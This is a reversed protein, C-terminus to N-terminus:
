GLENDGRGENLLQGGLGGRVTGLFRLCFKCDEM